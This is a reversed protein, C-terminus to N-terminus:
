ARIPRPPGALLPRLFDRVRTSSPRLDFRDVEEVTWGLAKLGALRREDAAAQRPTHDREGVYELALLRDPWALDVRGVLRGSRDRVEFQGVPLPFGWDGIRRYLRVEMPSDFTFGREWPYLAVELASYGQRGRGGRRAAASRIRQPGAIRKVLALDIILHFDDAPLQGALDVMTRAPHTTPVGAVRVRDAPPIARRHVTALSNRSGTGPPVTVVPRDPHDAVDFLAAASLDSARTGKPGILCAGHTLVTPTLATGAVVFLGRALKIWRGTRVRWAIQDHTLGAKSAHATTFLGNRHMSRRALLVDPDVAAAMCPM